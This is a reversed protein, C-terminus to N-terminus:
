DASEASMLAAVGTAAVRAAAGGDGARSSQRSKRLFRPATMPRATSPRSTKQARKALTM